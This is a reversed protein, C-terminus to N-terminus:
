STLNNEACFKYFESVCYPEPFYVYEDNVHYKLMALTEQHTKVAGILRNSEGVLRDYDSVFWGGDIWYDSVRQLRTRNNFKNLADKVEAIEDLTKSMLHDLYVILHQTKVKNM